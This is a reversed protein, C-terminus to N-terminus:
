KALNSEGKLLLKENINKIKKSFKGKKKITTQYKKHKENNLLCTQFVCTIIAIM